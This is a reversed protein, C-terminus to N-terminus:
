TRPSTERPRSTVQTAWAMVDRALPEQSPSSSGLPLVAHSPLPSPHNNRANASDNEDAVRAKKLLALRIFRM